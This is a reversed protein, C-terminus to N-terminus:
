GNLGLDHRLQNLETRHARTPEVALCRQELRVLAAVALDQDNDFWARARPHEWLVLWRALEVDNPEIMSAPWPPIPVGFRSRPVPIRDVMFTPDPHENQPSPWRWSLKSDSSTM